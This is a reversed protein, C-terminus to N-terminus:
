WGWGVGVTGGITLFEGAMGIEFEPRLFVHESLSIRVGAVRASAFVDFRSGAASQAWAARPSLSILLLVLLVARLVLRQGM